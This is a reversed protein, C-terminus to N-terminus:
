RQERAVALKYPSSALAAQASSLCCIWMYIDAAKVAAGVFVAKSNLSIDCSAELSGEFNSARIVSSACSCRRSFSAGCSHKPRLASM